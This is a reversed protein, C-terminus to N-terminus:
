MEEWGSIVRKPEWNFGAKVDCRNSSTLAEGFVLKRHKINILYLRLVTDHYKMTNKQGCTVDAYLRLLRAFM